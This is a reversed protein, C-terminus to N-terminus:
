IGAICMRVCMCVCSMGNGTKVCLIQAQDGGYEWLEGGGGVQLPAMPQSAHTRKKSGAAMMDFFSRRDIKVGVDSGSGFGSGFGSGAAPGGGLGKAAGDRGRKGGKGAIPGGPPAAAGVAAAAPGAATATPAAAAAAAAPPEDLQVALMIGYQEAARAARQQWSPEGAATPVAEVYPLYPAQEDWHCRIMQPLFELPGAPGVASAAEAAAARAGVAGVEETLPAASAIATAAAPQATAPAASPQLLMRLSRSKIDPGVGAGPGGAPPQQMHSLAGAERGAGGGAAVVAAATGHHQPPQARRPAAPPAPQLAAALAPSLRLADDATARGAATAGAAAPLLPLVEALDNYAKM